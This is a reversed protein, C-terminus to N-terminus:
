LVLNRGWCSLMSTVRIFMSESIAKRKAVVVTVVVISFTPVSGPHATNLCFSGFSAKIVSKVRYSKIKTTKRKQKNLEMQHM